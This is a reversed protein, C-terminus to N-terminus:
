VEAPAQLKSLDDHRQGYILRISNLHDETMYRKQKKLDTAISALEDLNACASVQGNFDKFLAASREEKARKKATEKELLESDHAAVEDPDMSQAQQGDLLPMIPEVVSFTPNPYTRGALVGTRDKEFVAFITSRSSDNVDKRSEMRACIHPEYETEGEARMGVGIKKMQGTAPDDEFLNKQRGLIFVHCPADMLFRILQKYPKKISGWAHMPISDIKTKKGEYAAIAADWLHSISDLVIIGHEEFNLKTVAEVVEALSTTYIADFDFAHPHIARGKVEKAYFDTGRETDVYAIRKKSLKALEEALLLTTFTKGAGPPGYLSMKIFGQEPKAKKFM